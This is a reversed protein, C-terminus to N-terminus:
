RQPGPTRSPLRRSATPKASIRGNPWAPTAFRVMTGRKAILMLEAFMEGVARRLRVCPSSAVGEALDRHCKKCALM